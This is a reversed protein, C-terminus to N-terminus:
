TETPAQGSSGDDSESDLNTLVIKTVVRLPNEDEDGGVIAQVPKGMGRDLLSNCAALSVKEDKSGILEILRNIAIVSKARALDKAERVEPSDKPKGSPNGSVGKVWRPNGDVGAM